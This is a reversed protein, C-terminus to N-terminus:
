LMIISFSSSMLNFFRKMTEKEEYLNELFVTSGQMRFEQIGKLIRNKDIM